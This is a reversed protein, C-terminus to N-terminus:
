VNERNLVHIFRILMIRASLYCKEPDSARYLFHQSERAVPGLPTKEEKDSSKPALTVMTVSITVKM